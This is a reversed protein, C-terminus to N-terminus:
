SRNKRTKRNIPEVDIGHYEFLYNRYKKTDVRFFIPSVISYYEYDTDYVDTIRGILVGNQYLKKGIRPDKKNNITITIDSSHTYKILNNKFIFAVNRCPRVTSIPREDDLFIPSLTEFDHINDLINDLIRKTAFSISREKQILKKYVSIQPNNMNKILNISLLLLLNDKAFSGSAEHHIIERFLLDM